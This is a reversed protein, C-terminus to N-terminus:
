ATECPLDCLIDSIDYQLLSNEDLYVCVLYDAFM